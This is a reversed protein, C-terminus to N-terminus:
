PQQRLKGGIEKALSAYLANGPELRIAQAVDAAGQKLNGNQAHAAGRYAWATAMKPDLSIARDLDEIARAYEDKMFYVFGRSQWIAARDPVLKGARGFNEIADDLEGLESQALGRNYWATGLGPNAALAADYDAVARQPNDSRYFLLGRDNLLVALDHGSFRKSDILRTCADIAAQGTSKHCLADDSSPAVTQAGLGSQGVLMIGVILLAAFNARSESFRAGPQRRLARLVGFIAAGILYFILVAGLLEGVATGWNGDSAAQAWRKANLVLTLALLILLSLSQPM